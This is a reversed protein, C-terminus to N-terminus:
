ETADLEFFRCNISEFQGNCNHEPDLTGGGRQEIELLALKSVAAM